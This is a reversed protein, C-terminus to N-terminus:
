YGYYWKGKADPRYSGGTRYTGGVGSFYPALDNARKPDITRLGIFQNDVEFYHHQPAHMPQSAAWKERKAIGTDYYRTTQHLFSPRAYLQHLPSYDGTPASDLESQMQLPIQQPVNKEFKARNAIGRDYYPTTQYLMTPRFYLQHLPTNGASAEGPYDRHKSYTYIPSVGMSRDIEARNVPIPATVADKSEMYKPVVAKSATRSPAAYPKKPDIEGGAAKADAKKDQGNKEKADQGLAVATSLLVGVPILAFRNM